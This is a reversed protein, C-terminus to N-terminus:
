VHYIAGGDSFRVFYRVSRTPRGYSSRNALLAQAIINKQEETYKHGHFVFWTSYNEPDDLLGVKEKEMDSLIDRSRSASFMLEVNPGSIKFGSVGENSSYMPHLELNNDSDFTRKNIIDGVWSM